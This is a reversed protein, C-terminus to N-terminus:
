GDKEIGLDQLMSTFAALGNQYTRSTNASRSLSVSDLYASISESVTPNIM